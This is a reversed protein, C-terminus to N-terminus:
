SIMPENQQWRDLVADCGQEILDMVREFGRVGGYYPDPVERISPYDPHFQLFLKLKGQHEAPCRRELDTLNQADMAYIEDYYAFDQDKVPRSYIASFDYGREHGLRVSRQDPKAGEHYASTGASEIEVQLQRQKAKHRFVAHATPSRCINGLCVFLIKKAM